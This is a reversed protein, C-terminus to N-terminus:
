VWGVMLTVKKPLSFSCRSIILMEANFDVFFTIGVARARSCCLAYYFYFCGPEQFSRLIRSLLAM